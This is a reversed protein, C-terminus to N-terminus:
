SMTWFGSRGSQVGRGRSRCHSLGEGGARRGAVRDAARDGRRQDQRARPLDAPHDQLGKAPHVCLGGSGRVRDPHHHPQHAATDRVGATRDPHRRCFGGPRHRDPETRGGCRDHDAFGARGHPERRLLEGLAPGRAAAGAQASGHDPAAGSEVLAADAFILYGGSGGHRQVRHGGAAAAQQGSGPASHQRDSIQDLRAAGARLGPQDGHARLRDGAARGASAGAASRPMVRKLNPKKKPPESGRRAPVGGSREANMSRSSRRMHM